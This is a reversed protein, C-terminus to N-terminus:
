HGSLQALVKSKDLPLAADKWPLSCISWPIGQIEQNSDQLGQQLGWCRGKEMHCGQALLLPNQSSLGLQDELRVPNGREKRLLTRVLPM